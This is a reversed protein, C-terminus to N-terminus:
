INYSLRLFGNEVEKVEIRQFLSINDQVRGTFPLVVHSCYSGKDLLGKEM